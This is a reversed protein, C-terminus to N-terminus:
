RPRELVHLLQKSASPNGVAMRQTPIRSTSPAHHVRSHALVYDLGVKARRSGDLDAATLQIGHNTLTRDIDHRILYDTLLSM